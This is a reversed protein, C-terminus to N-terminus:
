DSPIVGEQMTRNLLIAIPLSLFIVLEKMMRPHINDPGCAKNVHMAEIEVDVMEVTVRITELIASTRSPITPADGDPDRTFVSSFQQVLIKAKEKDTLKMSSKDIPNSLLRAM